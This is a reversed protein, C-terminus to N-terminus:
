TVVIGTIEGDVRVLTKTYTGDYLSVIEGGARNIVVYRGDEFDIRSIQGDTRTIVSTSPVVADGAPGAPGIILLSLALEIESPEVMAVVPIVPASAMDLSLSSANQRVEATINPPPSAIDITIETM